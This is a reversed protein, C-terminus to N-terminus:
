QPTLLTILSEPRQLGYGWRATTSWEDRKLDPNRKFEPAPTSRMVGMMPMCDDNALCMALNAVANTLAVPTGAYNDVTEAAIRPLLDSVWIDFGYINRVFRHNQAFGTNVIGQFMPNDVNIVNADLTNLVFEQSADMILVRGTMPVRAKDFSLKMYAIDELTIVGGTGSGAMRHAHANILNQDAPTQSANAARFLDSQMDERLRKASLNIRESFLRDSKWSDQKLKDTIYFGDQRYEPITLTLRSTDIATYDVPTNEYYDGWLVDGIQDINLTDGDPFEATYDRFMSQDIVFDDFSALLVQSYLEQRILNSTNGTTQAM